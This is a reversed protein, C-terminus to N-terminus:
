VWCVGFPLREVKVRKRNKQGNNKKKKEKAFIQRLSRLRIFHSDLMIACDSSNQTAAECHGSCLGCSPKEM